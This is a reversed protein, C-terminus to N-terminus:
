DINVVTGIPTYPWVKGATGIPEEVCGLSQPVGYTARPFGHLADGGNFYSVWPVGPDHYVSGDPNTGSMTTTALHEYVNYVGPATPRSPIGTNIPTTLITQGNHWLALTQAPVSVGVYSFGFSSHGKGTAAAHMLAKWVAPGLLGDTTLGQDNEFMMLGGRTVQTWEGAHWLGRLASPVNGYKWEFSGAPPNVAAAAQFAPGHHPLPARPAFRLPLYGLQALIEQARLTTGSGVAWAAQGGVLHATAPLQISVKGGLPYGYFLPHFALTHGNVIKWHGPTFPQIRPRAGNLADALPKSFTLTITQQPGIKSGPRPSALASAGAGTPFWSVITPAPLTEWARPAASVETTGAQGNRHIATISVPTAFTRSRMDGPEGSSLKAIPQTFGIRLAATPGLTLLTKQLTASPTRLTYTIRQTSGALWGIWGPRQIVAVITVQEGTALMGQPWIQDGRVVVPISQGSPGTATVNKITGGVAPLSVSALAKGDSGLSSSTGVLAVAAGIFVVFAVATFVVIV